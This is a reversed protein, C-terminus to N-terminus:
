FGLDPWHFVLVAALIVANILIAFLGQDDLNQWGGNWLLVFLVASFAAAGVVTPRWWPQQLLIAVGGAVFGMAALVLFMAVLPRVRGDGLVKSFAWSGDPWAMGPQLEFLRLSHGVYLLHVLGHLVMFVGVIFRM